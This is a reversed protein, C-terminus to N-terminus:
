AAAMNTTKVHKSLQDKSRQQATPELRQQHMSQECCFLLCKHSSRSVFSPAQFDTERKAHAFCTSEIQMRAQRNHYASAAPVQM